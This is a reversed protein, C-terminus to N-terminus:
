AERHVGTREWKAIDGDAVADGQVAYTEGHDRTRRLAEAHVHGALGQAAGHPEVLRAFNVQLFRQPHGVPEAAM